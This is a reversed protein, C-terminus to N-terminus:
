RAVWGRINRQLVAAALERRWLYEYADEWRVRGRYGRWVRQIQLASWLERETRIVEQWLQLRVLFGRVFRQIVVVSDEHSNMEAVLEKYKKRTVAGMWMKRLFTAAHDMRHM